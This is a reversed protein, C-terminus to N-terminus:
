RHRNYIHVVYGFIVSYEHTYHIDVRMKYKIKIETFQFIYSREIVVSFPFFIM